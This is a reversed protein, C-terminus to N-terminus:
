TPNSVAVRCVIVSVGTHTLPIPYLISFLRDSPIKAVVGRGCWICLESATCSCEIVATDVAVSQKGSAMNLLGTTWKTNVVIQATLPLALTSRTGRTNAIPVSREVPSVRLSVVPNSIQRM